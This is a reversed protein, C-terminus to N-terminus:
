NSSSPDEALSEYTAVEIRRLAEDISQETITLPPLFRMVAGHRGGTEVIVGHEFCKRKIRKALVGDPLFRDDRRSVIDMGLM